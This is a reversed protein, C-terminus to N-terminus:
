HLEYFVKAYFILLLIILSKHYNKKNKDLLYLMQEQIIKLFIILNILVISYVVIPKASTKIFSMENINDLLFKSFCLLAFPRLLPPFVFLEGIPNGNNKFNNSTKPFYKVYYLGSVHILLFLFGYIFYKM